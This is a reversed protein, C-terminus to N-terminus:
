RKEEVLLDILKQNLLLHEFIDDLTSLLTGITPCDNIIINVIKGESKMDIVMPPDVKNDPLLSEVAIKAKEANLFSIKCKASTNLITM